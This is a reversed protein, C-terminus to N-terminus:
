FSFLPLPQKAMEQKWLLHDKPVLAEMDTVMAEKRSDKRWQKMFDGEVCGWM